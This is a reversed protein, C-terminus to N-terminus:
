LLSRYYEVMQKAIVEYSLHKKFFNLCSESAQKQDQNLTTRLAIEFADVDGPPWLKGVTGDGTMKIFSPIKTIVPICGCALAELVAYGSGEKHSGLLFYDASNYYEPLDNRKKPGLLFVSKVIEPNNGLYTEVENIMNDFKYIMYLKAGPYDPLVRNFGELITLPDKNANLNGVWLCVPQGNMGSEQRAIDRDTRKFKVSAEMVFRVQDPKFIGKHLWVKEQGEASFFALAVNRFVRKQIYNRVSYKPTEAHNQIVVPVKTLSFLHRHQLVKNFNHCHIIDPQLGAVQKHLQRPIQWFKLAPGFEDAYFYYDVGNRNVRAAKTFRLIASIKCGQQVLAEAWDTLSYLANLLNDPDSIEELYEHVIFCIHPHPKM